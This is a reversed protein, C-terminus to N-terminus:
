ELSCQQLLQVSIWVYRIPGTLMGQQAPLNVLKLQIRALKHVRLAHERVNTPILILLSVMLVIQQITQVNLPILTLINGM